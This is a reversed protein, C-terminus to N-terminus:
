PHTRRFARAHLDSESNPWPVGTKAGFPRLVMPLWHPKKYEPAKGDLIRCATALKAQPLNIMTTSDILYTFLNTPEYEIQHTRQLWDVAAFAVDTIGSWLMLSDGIYIAAPMPRERDKFGPIDNDLNAFSVHDRRYVYEKIKAAMAAVEETPEPITNM